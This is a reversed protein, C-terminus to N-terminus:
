DVKSTFDVEQLYSDIVIQRDFLREVRERAKIGMDCKKEYPMAIFQKALELLKERDRPEFLLGTIGDEVTEKCGSRTTTIVPRGTAAAELCVNSMGEPYFSPHILCHAEAIYSNVDKVFGPYEVISDDVYQKVLSLYREDDCNGLITFKVDRYKKHIANAVYLYDKIGKEYLLRSIYLFNVCESKPYEVFPHNILSVGSGPILCKKGKGIQHVIFFRLNEENQFFICFVKKMAMKYLAILIKQLIGPTEVATGLGTINAIMPVKLIRCALGSYINPKITYGLVVDPRYKRIISIYKLFLSFDKFFNLGRRDIETPIFNDSINRIEEDRTSSPLSIFIEYGEKKFSEMVEKRFSLLGGANNAAVLIKKM